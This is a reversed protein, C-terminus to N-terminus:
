TLKIVLHVLKSVNHRWTVRYVWPNSKINCEFYVDMGEQIASGNINSGLELNVVPVDTSLFIIYSPARSICFLLLLDAFYPKHKTHYGGGMINGFWLNRFVINCYFRKYYFHYCKTNFNNITEWLTWILMYLKDNM